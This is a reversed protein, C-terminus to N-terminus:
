GYRKKWYDMFDKDDMSAWDLPKSTTRSPRRVGPTTESTLREAEYERKWAEKEEKLRSELKSATRRDAVIELATRNFNSLAQDDPGAAVAERLKTREDDNLEKWEPIGHYAQGVQEMLRKMANQEVAGIRARAKEAEQISLFKDAFELPRNQAMDELEARAARAAEAAREADRQQNIQAMQREAISGAIGGIARHKRLHGAATKPDATYARELTANLNDWDIPEPQQDAASEEAAPATSTEATPEGTPEDAM